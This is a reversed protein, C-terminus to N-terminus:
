LGGANDAGLVCQTLNVCDSIMTPMVSNCQSAMHTCTGIDTAAAANSQLSELSAEFCHYFEINVVEGQGALEPCQRLMALANDIPQDGDSSVSLACTSNASNFYAVCSGCPIQTEYPDDTAYYMGCPESVDTSPIDALAPRLSLFCYAAAMTITRKKRGDMSRNEGIIHAYNKYCASGGIMAM